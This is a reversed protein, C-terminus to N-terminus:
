LGISGMMDLLLVAGLGGFPLLVAKVIPHRSWPAFAGRQLGKVEEILLRIQDVRVRRREEAQQEGLMSEDSAAETGGDGERREQVHGAHAQSLKEQLRELIKQRANEGARRMIVACALAYSSMIGFIIVLSLPWHWHDFFGVRAIMLIALVFFPYVILKGVVETRDAILQADLLDSADEEVVLSRRVAIRALAENPWQTAHASLRELFTECLRSADVVFFTLGIIAFVSALLVQRDTEVALIGRIPKFPRGFQNVITGALLWYVVAVPVFRTLRHSFRGRYLYGSWVADAPVPQANRTERRWENISIRRRESWWFAALDRLWNWVAKLISFHTPIESRNGEGLGARAVAARQSRRNQRAQRRGQWWGDWFTLPRPEFPDPRLVYRGTLERDSEEILVAARVILGVSLLASLARLIETPWVSIGEALEFPEGGRLLGGRLVAHILFAAAAAALVLYLDTAIMARAAYRDSEGWREIAYARLRPFVPVMLLFTLVGLKALNKMTSAHPLARRQESYLPALATRVQQITLSPIALAQEPPTVDYAGSRAVEFIRPETWLHPGLGDAARRASLLHRRREDADAPDGGADALAAQVAFFTATQYADRFPPAYEQFETGLELGYTSGVILNRNWSYDEPHFLRADLDTTFFQADPFRRRLAQLVLLKDYVDSGVVGIAQIREGHGSLKDELDSLQQAVRRMYDYRRPGAARELGGHSVLRDFVAGRLRDSLPQAENRDESRTTGQLDATRLGGPLSGDLGRLYTFRHIKAPSPLDGLRARITPLLARFDGKARCTEVAAEFVLPLARGYFTDWEGLLAVHAKGNQSCLDVGRRELERVLAWIIRDDTAVTSIFTAGYGEKIIRRLALDDTEGSHIEQAGALLLSSTATARSSFIELRDLFSRSAEVAQRGTEPLLRPEVRGADWPGTAAGSCSGPASAKEVIRRLEGSTAPGLLRLDVGALTESGRSGAVRILGGGALPGGTEPFVAQLLRDIQRLPDDRFAGEDLWLILVSEARGRQGIPRLPDREFWEFPVATTDSTAGGSNQGKRCPSCTFRVYGISDGDTPVYGAAALGSVVAVRIRRRNEGQEVYPEGPVMAPMVVLSGRTKMAGTVTGSRASSADLKRRVEAALATISHHDPVGTSEVTLGATQPAGSSGQAREFAVAKFPDEWLRTEVDELGPMQRRYSVEPDPRLSVFPQEYLLYGGVGMILIVASIPLISRTREQTDM